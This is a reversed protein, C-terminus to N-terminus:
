ECAQDVKRVTKAHAAVRVIKPPTRKTVEEFVIGAHVSKYELITKLTPWGVDLVSKAMKTKVLAKSSVNGVFIVANENVLKRSYKHLTDSRRNKIKAHISKVRKKNTARQAIGLQKELKRYERGKIKYVNSDTATEKCGLDIGVASTGTSKACEVEV